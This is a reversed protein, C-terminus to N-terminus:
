PSLSRDLEEMRADIQRRVNSHSGSQVYYMPKNIKEGIGRM